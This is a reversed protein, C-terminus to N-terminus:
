GLGEWLKLVEDLDADALTHVTPFASIFREYYPIVTDVRTQQLMFESLVIRYPDSTKRWPMDRKQKNYWSLLLRRLSAKEKSTWIM